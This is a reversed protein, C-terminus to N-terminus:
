DFDFVVEDAAATEEARASSLWLFIALVVITAIFIVIGLTSNPIGGAATEAQAAATPTLSLASMGTYHMGCVATAMVFASGFRQLNGRLNFALWLAVTSAVIAIIVSVIVLITNWSTEAPMIMAAMGLYHMGTVGTGTFIGASVLTTLTGSGRGVISLGIGVVLVALILSLLTLSPAYSIEVPVDFALMGIFHMAWIAGGGLATAAGVVWLILSNDRASPIRIALQLATFSGFVSILYSLAVLFFNYNTELM